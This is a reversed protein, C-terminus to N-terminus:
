QQDDKRLKEIFRRSAGLRELANEDHTQTWIERLRKKREEQYFLQVSIHGLNENIKDKKKSVGRQPIFEMIKNFYERAGQNKHCFNLDGGFAKDRHFIQSAAYKMASDWYDVLKNVSDVYRKEVEHIDEHCMRCVTVLNSDPEDGLNYSFDYTLHHVILDDKAGCIQCRNEDRDLIKKRKQKWTESLLYKRYEDNM